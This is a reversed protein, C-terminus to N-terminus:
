LFQEIRYLLPSPIPHETYLPETNSSPHTKLKFDKITWIQREFVFFNQLAVTPFGM